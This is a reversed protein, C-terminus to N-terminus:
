PANCHMLWRPLKFGFFTFFHNFITVEIHAGIETDFSEYRKRVLEDLSGDKINYNM